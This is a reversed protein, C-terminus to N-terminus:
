FERVDKVRDQVEDQEKSRVEKLERINSSSTTLHERNAAKRRLLQLIKASRRTNGVNERKM